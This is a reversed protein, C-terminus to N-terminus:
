VLLPTTHKKVNICEVNKAIDLHSDVDTDNSNSSVYHIEAESLLASVKECNNDM